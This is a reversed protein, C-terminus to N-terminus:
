AAARKKLDERMLALQHPKDVDMGIEAYPCRIARARIGMRQSARRVAGDVDILRFLVLLMTDFGLLAAQKLPNKRSDIIRRWLADNESAVAAKVANMDGGCLEVGRLKTYTRKSGPFRTEMTERDIVNYYLDHDSTEVTQVLWDVMEATIAPIDSSVVLVQRTSPNLEQIKFIGSRINEIMAGQNPIFTLPKACTVGSEATLGTIVVQGVRSSGSLADLAWQIMPKGCIDLLAKSKGQTYEYLPEGPQPFGGATVVADM